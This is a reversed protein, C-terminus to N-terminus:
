GTQPHRTQPTDNSHVCTCSQWFLFCQAHLSMQLEKKCCSLIFAFVMRPSKMASACRSRPPTKAWQAVGRATPPHAADKRRDRAALHRQPTASATIALNDCNDPYCRLHVCPMPGRPAPNYIIVFMSRLDNQHDSQAVRTQVYTLCQLISPMPFINRNSRRLTHM